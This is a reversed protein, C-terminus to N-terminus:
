LTQMLVGFHQRIDNPEGPNTELRIEDFAQNVNTFVIMPFTKNSRDHHCWYSNQALSNFRRCVFPRAEYISCSGNQLFPCPQGHFSKKTGLTKLSRHKTHKEIYAVEIESVSINYYCCASCGKKCPMYPTIAKSLDAMLSYLIELKKLPGIKAKRLKEVLKEEKAELRGPIATLVKQQNKEAFNLAVEYEIPESNPM